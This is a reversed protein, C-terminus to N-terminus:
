SLLQCRVSITCLLSVTDWLIFWHALLLQCRVSFTCLIIISLKLFCGLLSPIDTKLSLENCINSWHRNGIVSIKDIRSNTSMDIVSIQGYGIKDIWSNTSIDTVSISWLRNGIVSIKDIRSNTSIDTRVKVSVSIRYKWLKTFRYAM